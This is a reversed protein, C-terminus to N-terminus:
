TVMLNSPKVDRHVLGQDAAHQLGLAAQRVYECAVASPMPGREKVLSKLDVGDILEMAVFHQRSFTDADIALVINPHVLQGVARVEQQFRAVIRPNSLKDTRIVKLAMDRGLRIHRARFVRGMSGEGLIDLLIYHGVTLKHGKGKHIRQIQYDTLWHTKHL